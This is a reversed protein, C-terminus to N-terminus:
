AAEQDDSSSNETEESTEPEPDGHEYEELFTLLEARLEYYRPHELLEKRTRPRPLDVEMIKGVTAHPGNTMMIVRDALLIAEDVDHTVCMATVQTRKWVDMLVEQLEWRTLSDLMGFPEDLLLFKPSLAFARAIGVRQRMGNSMESAMKDMSDALGVRSLYYEVIDRREFENAHPYVREVGIMVNDRATLWPFLSPAQFVVGRDPGAGDVETGDLIIGGRSIENLGAAMTLVTSKGCGSHGIVSVFEGKKLQLNFDDVVKLPGNPTPYVKDVHSFDVFRHLDGSRPEAREKAKKPMRAGPMIPSVAPLPSFEGTEASKEMGVNILYQTVEKRLKKFNEDHNMATRDRPRPLDVVFDPGLTANPGPTLPIIRDALLIAEDVDNTILIVTKKEQDWIREIEDQLNARTLADLASLPEDLLLIQPSMALARAVSVRQRMGGSLESPKRDKAHSLGVMDIYHLVRKEKSEKSENKFVSDVALMVNGFVSMWPFLSYSQFVLGRDPGAGEIKKGNLLIEGTDPEILGAIASILTTKGSGSFGVIAVFEGEKIHLNIDNLVDTRDAGKGYGKNVNNLELFAM